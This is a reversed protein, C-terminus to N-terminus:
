GRYNYLDFLIQSDEEVLKTHMEVFKTEVELIIEKDEITKAEKFQREFKDIWSELFDIGAFNQKLKKQLKFRKIPNLVM